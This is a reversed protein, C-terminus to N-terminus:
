FSNFHLFSINLGLLIFCCRRASSVPFLLECTAQTFVSYFLPPVLIYVFHSSLRKFFLHFFVPYILKVFLHLSSNCHHYNNLFVEVLLINWARIITVADCWTIPKKKFVNKYIHNRLSAVVISGKSVKDSGDAMAKYRAKEEPSIKKWREAVSKMNGQIRM